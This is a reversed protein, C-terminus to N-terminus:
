WFDVYLFIILIYNFGAFLIIAVATGDIVSERWLLVHQHTIRQEFKAPRFFSIVSL